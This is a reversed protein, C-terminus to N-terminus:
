CGLCAAVVSSTASTRVLSSGVGAPYSATTGSLDEWVVPTTLDEFLVDDIVFDGGTPATGASAFLHGSLSSSPNTPALGATTTGNVRLTATTTTAEVRITSWSGVPVLGAASVTSWSTGDWQAIGGDAQVAFHYATIPSGDASEGLITFLFGHPMAVPDLRFELRKAPSPAGLWTVKAHATSSTDKIRLARSSGDTGTRTVWSMTQDTYGRARTNVPDNEFSNVTSYLEIENLFACSAGLGADCSTSADIEVRVYRAPIPNSLASYEMAYHTQDSMEIIPAGWTSGDMSAYIRGTTEKGNRLSVGIRTLDYQRDLAIIYSGAGGARAASSWYDTSGDFAGTVGVRPHASDTYNMDTTVSILGAQYKSYLDIKGVDPTLVDVFRRWIRNQDDLTYGSNITAGTQPDRRCAWTLDCNDGVQVLRNSEVAEIDTNGTSGHFRHGNQPCNRYTLEGVWETGLGNTSIAVWNDPRGSSLVMVGNPMLQLQPAVGILAGTSDNFPDYGNPFSVNLTNLPAWNVGDDTSRTYVPTAIAGFTGSPWPVHHRVVSLLDGNPLQAIAAEPYSNGTDPKAIIGRRSFSAGSDSSALVISQHRGVSHDTFQGYMSVLLTGDGLELIEGHTRPGGNPTPNVLKSGLAFNATSTTWTGGGDVSRSVEFGATDELVGPTISDAKFAIAILDGSRLRTATNMPIASTSYTATPFTVGGDLSTTSGSVPVANVEDVSESFTTILKRVNEGGEIVDLGLVAPFATQPNGPPDWVTGLESAGGVNLVYDTASKGTGTVPSGNLVTECSPDNVPSAGAVYPRALDTVTVSASAVLGILGIWRFLSLMRGNRGAVTRHDTFDTVAHHTETAGSERIDPSRASDNVFSPEVPIENRKRMPSLCWHAIEASTTLLKQLPWYSSRDARSV